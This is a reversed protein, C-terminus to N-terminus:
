NGGVDWISFTIRAGGFSLTKDMLNLGAMELSKNNEQEDGVYKIKFTDFIFIINLLNSTNKKKFISVQDVIIILEILINLVWLGM